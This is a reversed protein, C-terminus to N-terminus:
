LTGIIHHQGRTPHTQLGDSWGGGGAAGGLRRWCHRLVRAADTAAMPVGRAFGVRGAVVHLQNNGFNSSPLTKVGTQRNM